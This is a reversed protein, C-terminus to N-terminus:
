RVLTQRGRRATGVHLRGRLRQPPQQIPSSSSLRPARYPPSSLRREPAGHGRGRTARRNILHNTRDERSRPTSHTLDVVVPSQQHPIRAQRRTPEHEDKADDEEEEDDDMIVMRPGRRHLPQHQPVPTVERSEYDPEDYDTIDYISRTAASGSDNGQSSGSTSGLPIGYFRPQAQPHEWGVTSADDEGSEDDVDEEDPCEEAEDSHVVFGGLDSGDTEPESRYGVDPGSSYPGVASEDQTGYDTVDARMNNQSTEGDSSIDSYPTMNNRAVAGLFGDDDDAPFDPDAERLHEILGRGDRVVNHLRQATRNTSAANPDSEYAQRNERNIIEIERALIDDPDADEDDIEHDQDSFDSLDDLDETDDVGSFDHDHVDYGCHLCQGDELEWTCSPCRMVGDAVDPIPMHRRPMLAGFQMNPFAGGFLGEGAKHTAMLVSEQEKATEHEHVTEDEPLM